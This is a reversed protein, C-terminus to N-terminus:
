KTATAKEQNDREELNCTPPFKLEVVAIVSHSSPSFWGIALDTRSDDFTVEPLLSYPVHDGLLGSYGLVEEFMLRNFAQVAKQETIQIGGGKADDSRAM